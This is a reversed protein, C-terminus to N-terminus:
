KQYLYIYSYVLWLLGGFFVPIALLGIYSVWRPVIGLGATVEWSGDELSDHMEKKIYHQILFANLFYFGVGMLCLILGAIWPETETKGSFIGACLFFIMVNLLWSIIKFPLKMIRFIM